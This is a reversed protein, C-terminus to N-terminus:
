GPAYFDSLKSKLSNRGVPTRVYVDIVDNDIAMVVFCRRESNPRAFTALHETSSRRVVEANTVGPAVEGYIAIVQSSLQQIAADIPYRDNVEFNCAPLGPSGGYNVAVCDENQSDKFYDFEWKKGLAVGNTLTTTSGNIQASAAESSASTRSTVPSSCAAAAGGTLGAAILFPILRSAMPDERAGCIAVSCSPGAAFPDTGTSGSTLKM